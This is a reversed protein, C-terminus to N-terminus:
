STVVRRDPMLVASLPRDRRGGSTDCLIRGTTCVASPLPTHGSVVWTNLSLDCPIGQVRRAYLFPPLPSFPDWWDSVSAIEALQPELPDTRFGSHVVLYRHRGDFLDLHWPLSAMWPLLDGLAARLGEPDDMSIGFNDCTADGGYIVQWEEFLAPDGPIDLEPVGLARVLGYEHNGMVCLAEGHACLAQVEELVQRSAPGRDLLDGVFIPLGRCQRLVKLLRDYWGHVDGIFSFAM